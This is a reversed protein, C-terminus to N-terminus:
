EPSCVDSHCRRAVSQSRSFCSLRARSCVNRFCWNVKDISHVAQEVIQDGSLWTFNYWNRTMWELDSMGAPRSEAKPMPKVPGTLYTGYVTRIDGITGDLMKEFVADHPAITVVPMQEDILAIPGHKMEGAAYGEAHVYSIEKLKLAGELAIPFCLGRGLFLMDRAHQFRQALARQM